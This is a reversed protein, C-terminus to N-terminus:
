GGRNTFKLEFFEKWRRMEEKKMLFILGLEGLEFFKKPIERCVIEKDYFKIGAVGLSKIKENRCMEIWKKLNLERDKLYSSKLRLSNVKAM